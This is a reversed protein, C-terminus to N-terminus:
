WPPVSENITFLIPLRSNCVWSAELPNINSALFPVMSILSSPVSIVVILLVPILITEPSSYWISPFETNLASVNPEPTTVDDNVVTAVRSAPEIDLLKPSISLPSELIVLPPTKCISLSASAFSVEASLVVPRIENPIFLSKLKYWPPVSENITFLIPLRSNCVWSASFPNINSALFPVMSILSSPVSIVVIFLVPILITEPSSYWISPFETNLASVNPEPTTVDENVVTAVRSVPEIDLLKPSISLPSELIVLPPTKCISWSASALSVEASLVVPRIENPIFLSKLKYWPPVSENITFLTPLRSNCVWSFEVPNINSALFPVMSILSSPVSIVVILLVPILITEPSSYWISPLETNLMSVNPEPTTFDDNVVTAARSEPEIDLLKPSISIPSELIVLPPTNFISWSASALSVVASLM